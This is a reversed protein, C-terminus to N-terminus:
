RRHKRGIAVLQGSNIDGHFDNLAATEANSQWCPTVQEANKHVSLTDM